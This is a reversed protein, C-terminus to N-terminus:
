LTGGIKNYSPPKRKAIIKELYTSSIQEAESIKAVSCVEKKQAIYAIARLGYRTSTSFKM